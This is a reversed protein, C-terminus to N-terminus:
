RWARYSLASRLASARDAEHRLASAADGQLRALRAMTASARAAQRLASAQARTHLTVAQNTSMMGSSMARGPGLHPAVGLRAVIVIGTLGSQCNRDASVSPTPGDGGSVTYARM